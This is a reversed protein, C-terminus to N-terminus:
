LLTITLSVTTSVSQPTPSTQDEVTFKLSYTRTGLGASLLGPTGSLVGDPTLTLGDPLPDPSDSALTWTYTGPGTGGTASLPTSYAEGVKGDLLPSATTITLPPPAANITITLSKTTSQQNPVTSDEVKFM